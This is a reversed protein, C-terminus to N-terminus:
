LVIKRPLRSESICGDPIMKDISLSDKSIELLYARLVRMYRLLSIKHKKLLMSTIQKSLTVNPISVVCLDHSLALLARFM